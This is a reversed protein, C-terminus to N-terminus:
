HYTGFHHIMNLFLLRFPFCFIVFLNLFSFYIRKNVGYNREKPRKVTKKLREESENPRERSTSGESIHGDM